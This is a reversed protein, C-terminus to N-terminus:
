QKRWVHTVISVASRDDVTNRSEKRDIGFSHLSSFKDKRSEVKRGGRASGRAVLFFSPFSFLFSDSDHDVRANYRSDGPDM